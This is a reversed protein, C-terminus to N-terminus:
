QRITLKQDQNGFFQVILTTEQVEVIAIGMESYYPSLINARHKESSMWTRELEAANDFGSALNEGAYVYNYGLTKFWHWPKKGDPGVHAFYNGTIMDYAKASAALNLTTSLSLPVLGNENRDQNVLTLVKEPSLPDNHASASSAFIVFFLLLGLKVRNSISLEKGKQITQMKVGNAITIGPM